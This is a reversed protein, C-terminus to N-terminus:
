KGIIELLERLSNITYDPNVSTYGEYIKGNHFIDEPIGRNIHITIMGARKAGWIDDKLSDGVFIAREPHVKLRSLAYIFIDPNPKRMNVDASTVIIKFYPLLNFQKLLVRALLDDAINSVIGMVINMKRIEELTPLVDPFLETSEIIFKHARSQIMKLVEHNIKIGLKFCCEAIWRIAHIEIGLDYKLKRGSTYSEELSSLLKEEDINYGLEKFIQVTAREYDKSILHKPKLLTIFLDFLIADVLM